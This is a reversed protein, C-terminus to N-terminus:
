EPLRGCFLTEALEKRYKDELEKIYEEVTLRVRVSRDETELIVGEHISIGDVADEGSKSFDVSSVSVIEAKLKSSIEKKVSDSDFGYVIVNIKKNEFLKESRNLMSLVLELRKKPELNKLYDDISQAVSSSVYSVLFRSKELPLSSDLDKKYQQVKKEYYSERERRANEIRTEVDALIQNGQEEAKKLIKEAKKRATEQIEKDLIETSKLEEM